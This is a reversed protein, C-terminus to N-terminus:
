WLLSGISSTVALDARAIKIYENIKYGNVGVIACVNTSDLQFAVYLIFQRSKGPPGTTLFGGALASSM